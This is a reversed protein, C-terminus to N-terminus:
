VHTTSLEYFKPLTGAIDRSANEECTSESITSDHSNTPAGQATHFLGETHDFEGARERERLDVSWQRSGFLVASCDNSCERGSGLEIFDGRSRPLFHSSNARMGTVLRSSM